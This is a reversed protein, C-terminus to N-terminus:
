IHKFIINLKSKLRSFDSKKNFLSISFRLTGNPTRSFEHALPSCHIGARVCIKYKNLITAMDDIAVGKVICSIISICDGDNRKFFM